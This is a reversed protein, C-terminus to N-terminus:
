HAFAYFPIAGKPVTDCETSAHVVSTVQMRCVSHRPALVGTQHDCCGQNNACTSSKLKERHNVLAFYRPAQLFIAHLVCRKKQTDEAGALSASGVTTKSAAMSVKLNLTKTNSWLIKLGASFHCAFCM